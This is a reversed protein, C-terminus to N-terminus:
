DKKKNRDINFLLRIIPGIFRVVEVDEYIEFVVILVVM